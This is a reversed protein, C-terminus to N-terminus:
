YCPCRMFVPFALFTHRAQMLTQQKVIWQCEGPNSTECKLEWIGDKIDTKSKGTGGLIVFKNGETEVM